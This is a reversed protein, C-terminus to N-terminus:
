PSAMTSFAAVFLLAAVIAACALQLRGPWDPRPHDRTVRLDTTPM